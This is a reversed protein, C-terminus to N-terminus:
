AFTFLVSIDHIVDYILATYYGGRVPHQFKENKKCKGTLHSLRDSVHNLINQMNYKQRWHKSETPQAAPLADPRYFVLHKPAPM